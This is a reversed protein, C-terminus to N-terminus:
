APPPSRQPSAHPVDAASFDVLKMPVFVCRKVRELEIVTRYLQVVESYEVSLVHM